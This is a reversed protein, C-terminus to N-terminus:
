NFTIGELCVLSDQFVRTDSINAPCLHGEKLVDVINIPDKEVKVILPVDTPADEKKNYLDRELEVVKRELDEVQQQEGTVHNKKKICFL